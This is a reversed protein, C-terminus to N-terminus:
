QSLGELLVGLHDILRASTIADEPIPWGKQRFANAARVALPPKLGFEALSDIQKFVTGPDGALVDKGKALVSIEDLWEMTEEL